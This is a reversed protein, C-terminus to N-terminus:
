FGFIRGIQDISNEEQPQEPIFRLLFPRADAVAVTGLPISLPQRGPTKPELLLEAGDARSFIYFSKIDRYEHIKGGIEVGRPSLSFPMVTSPRKAYYLMLSYALVIFTLFFYNKSFLAWLILLSVVVTIVIYWRRGYTYARYEPAFWRITDSEADYEPPSNEPANDEDRIKVTTAMLPM